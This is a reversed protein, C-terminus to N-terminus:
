VTVSGATFNTRRTIGVTRIPPTPSSRDIITSSSTTNMSIRSTCGPHRPVRAVRLRPTRSTIKHAQGWGVHMVDREAFRRDTLPAVVLVLYVCEEVQNFGLKGPQHLLVVVQTALHLLELGLQLGGLDVQVIGAALRRRNGRGGGGWRLFGAPKGRDRRRGGSLLRGRATIVVHLGGLHQAERLLHGVPQRTLGLGLRVAHQGLRPRLGLLQKGFRARLGVAHDVLRPGPGLRHEVVGAGPRLGQLPLGALLGSAQLAVRLALM